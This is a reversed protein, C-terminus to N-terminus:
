AFLGPLLNHLAEGVCTMRPRRRPVSTPPLDALNIQVIVPEHIKSTRGIPPVGMQSAKLGRSLALDGHTAEPLMHIQWGKRLQDIEEETNGTQEAWTRLANKIGNKSMNLDGGVIGNGSLNNFFYEM